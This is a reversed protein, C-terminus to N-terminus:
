FCFTVAIRKLLKTHWFKQVFCHRNEIILFSILLLIVNQSEALLLQYAKERMCKDINPQLTLDQLDNM